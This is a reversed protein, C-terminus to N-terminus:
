SQSPHSYNFQVWQWCIPVNVRKDMQPMPVKKHLKKQTTTIERRADSIDSHIQKPQPSLSHPNDFFHAGAEAGKIYRGTM